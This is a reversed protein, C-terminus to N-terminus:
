RLVAWLAAATAILGSALLGVGALLKRGDYHGSSQALASLQGGREAITHNLRDVTQYGSLLSPHPPRAAAAARGLEATLDAVEREAEGRDRQRGAISAAMAAAARRRAGIAGELKAKAAAATRNLAAAKARHELLERDLRAAQAELAQQESGIRAVQHALEGARTPTPAPSATMARQLRAREDRAKGLQAEVSRRESTAVRVLEDADRSAKESTSFEAQAASEESTLRTAEAQQLGDAAAGDAVAAERKANARGIAELLGTLDAHTVGHQLVTAGLESMAGSLLAEAGTREETLRRRREEADLKGRLFVYVYGVSEGVWGLRSRRGPATAVPLSGSKPFAQTPGTAHASSAPTM